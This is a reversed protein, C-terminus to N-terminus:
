PKHQLTLQLSCDELYGDGLDAQGMVTENVAGASGNQLTVTFALGGSTMHDSFCDGSIGLLDAEVTSGQPPPFLWTENTSGFGSFTFTATTAGTDACANLVLTCNEFFSQGPALNVIIPPVDGGVTTTAQGSLYQCFGSGQLNTNSSYNIPFQGSAEIEEVDDPTTFNATIDFTLQFNIAGYTEAILQSNNGGFVLINKAVLLIVQPLSYDHGTKFKTLYYNGLDVLDATAETNLLSADVGFKIGQKVFAITVQTVVPVTAPVHGYNALLFNVKDYMEGGYLEGVLASAKIQLSSNGVRAAIGAITVLQNIADYEQQFMEAQYASAAQAARTQSAPDCTWEVNPPPPPIPPDDELAKVVSAAQNFAQQLLAPNAALAQLQQSTPATVAGSSFHFLTTSYSDAVNATGVLNINSGDEAVSMLSANTGLPAPTTLTLTVGDCFQIGDPDLLVAATAPLVANSANISGVPTMTIIQPALLADAPLSLTWGNGFADTVTLSAPNGDALFNLSAARSPDPTFQYNGLFVVPGDALTFSGSQFGATASNTTYFFGAAPATFVLSQYNTVNQSDVTM